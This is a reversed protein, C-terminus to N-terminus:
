SLYDQIEKQAQKIDKKTQTLRDIPAVSTETLSEEVSSADEISKTFDDLVADVANGSSNNNQTSTSNNKSDSSSHLATNIKNLLNKLAAEDPKNEVKKGAKILAKAKNSIEELYRSQTTLLRYIGLRLYVSEDYALIKGADQAKFMFHDICFEFFTQFAPKEKFLQDLTIGSDKLEPWGGDKRPFYWENGYADIVGFKSIFDAAAGLWGRNLFDKIEKQAEKIDKKAAAASAAEAARVDDPIGVSTETLESVLSDLGENLPNKGM